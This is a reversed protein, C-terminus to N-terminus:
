VDNILITTTNEDVKKVTINKNTDDDVDFNLNFNNKVANPSDNITNSQSAFALSQESPNDWYGINTLIALILFPVILFLIFSLASKEQNTGTKIRRKKNFCVFDKTRLPYLLPCGHTTLIDLFIHSIFGIIMAAAIGLNLFGVLLFPVLWFISHGFGRHKGTLKDMLDPFISFWCAFFIGFVLNSYDTLYTFTIYLLLAGAIHTYFRM